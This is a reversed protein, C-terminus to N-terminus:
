SVFRTVLIVPLCDQKKMKFKFFVVYSVKPYLIKL